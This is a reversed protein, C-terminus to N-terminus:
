MLTTSAYLSSVFCASTCTAHLLLLHCGLPLELFGIKEGTVRCPFNCQSDFPCMQCTFIYSQTSMSSLCHLCAAISHPAESLVRSGPWVSAGSGFEEIAIICALCTAGTCDMCNGSPKLHQWMNCQMDLQCFTFAAVALKYMM